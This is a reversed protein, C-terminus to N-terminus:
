RGAPRASIAPRERVNPESDEVDPRRMGCDKRVCAPMSMLLSMVPSTPNEPECSAVMSTTSAPVNSTPASFEWSQSLGAPVAYLVSCVATLRVLGQWFIVPARNVMDRSAWMLCAAAMMLFAGLTMLAVFQGPMAALMQMQYLAGAKQIVFFNRKHREHTYGGSYDKPIPTDIGAEIEADVEAKVMALTKDFLPVTGLAARIKQVGDQTLIVKPHDGAPSSTPLLMALVFLVSAITIHHNM